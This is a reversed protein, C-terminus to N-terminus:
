ISPSAHQIVIMQATGNGSNLLLRVVFPAYAYSSQITTTAGVAAPDSTNVWNVNDLGVVAPNDLSSQITYNVTGSVNVQIGTPAFGYPDLFIPRSGAITNTGVTVTGATAGSTYVVYVIAFDLGTDVAGGNAGAVTVSQVQGNWDTGVVTFTIGTDNGASTIIVHRPHDLVGAALTVATGDGAVFPALLPGVIVDVDQALAGDIDLL